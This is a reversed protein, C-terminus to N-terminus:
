LVAIASILAPMAVIYRLSRRDKPMAGSSMVPTNVCRRRQHPMPLAPRRLPLRQATPACRLRRPRQRRAATGPGTPHSEGAQGRRGRLAM